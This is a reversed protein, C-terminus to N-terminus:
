IHETSKNKYLLKLEDWFLLTLVTHPIMRFYSPWFGKYFGHLGEKRMTKNFCDFIGNYM